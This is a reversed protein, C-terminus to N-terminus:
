NPSTRGPAGNPRRGAEAAPAVAASCHGKSDCSRVGFFVNDKSIPLTVTHSQGQVTENYMSAKGSYQWDSASEERWVIQYWTDAPAGNPAEFTIVSDNNQSRASIRAAKPSGPASAMTALTAANLRAVKAIYNFDDFKLLDGYEIGNETRVNQHQHNYNERWETFRVAAFGQENFSRHDGGRGYRDLRMEMVPLIFAAPKTPAPFYTHDVDLIERALERSSSDSEEGMSAIRRMQEDTASAPIGESFVRVLTKSQLKDGPTTDGGVIDNNLVGELDWGEQKALVALHHSGNLGQEEGPVTVFVLTAPFKHKSLMRACELSVATGSTDDNAGPAFSHDDTMDTIRTDYHGTVLYMRGSQAPDTGKLIAYINILKTDRSFRSPAADMGPKGGPEMFIDEKVELCGGCERSITDFQGKIWDAAALVGTGPPLDTEMSSTTMRTKFNVLTEITQQIRAPSATAIAAAIQQDVPAPKLPAGTAKFDLEQSQAATLSLGFLAVAVVIAPSCKLM